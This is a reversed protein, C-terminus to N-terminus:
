SAYDYLGKLKKTSNLLSQIQDNQVYGMFTQMDDWGGASMIDKPNVGDYFMNTAFTRRCCHSALKEFFKSEVEKKIGNRIENNYFTENWKLLEGIKKFGATFLDRDMKDPFKNGNKQYTAILPPTAPIMLPKGNGDLSKQTRYTVYTIKEKGIKETKIEGLRHWDQNRCGTFCFTIILDKVRNLDISVDFKKGANTKVNKKVIIRQDKFDTKFLQELKQKNLYIHDKSKHKGVKIHERPNIALMIGKREACRLANKLLRAIDKTVYDKSLYILKDNHQFKTTLCWKIFNDFQDPTFLEIFIKKEIEKQYIMIKKVLGKMNNKIGTGKMVNNIIEDQIFDILLNKTKITQEPAGNNVYLKIQDPSPLENNTLRYYNFADKIKKEIENLKNNTVVDYVMRKNVPNWNSPKCLLGTSWVLKVPKKNIEYGYFWKIMIPKEGNVNALGDLTFNVQTVEGNKITTKKM